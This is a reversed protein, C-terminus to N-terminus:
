SNPPRGRRVRRRRRPYPSGRADELQELYRRFAESALDSLTEHEWYSADRLKEGIEKDIYFSMHIKLTDKSRAKAMARIRHIRGHGVLGTAGAVWGHESTEV